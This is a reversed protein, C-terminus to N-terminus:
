GAPEEPLASFNLLCWNTKMGQQNWLLPLLIGGSLKKQWQAGEGLKKLSQIFVAKCELDVLIV